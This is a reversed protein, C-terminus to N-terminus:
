KAMANLMVSAFAHISCLSLAEVAFSISLTVYALVTSHYFKQTIERLACMANENEYYDSCGSSKGSKKKM